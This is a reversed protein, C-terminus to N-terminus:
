RGSIRHCTRRHWNLLLFRFSSCTSILVVHMPVKNENVIELHIVDWDPHQATDVHHVQLQSYQAHCGPAEPWFRNCMEQLIWHKYSQLIKCLGTGAFVAHIACTCWLCHVWRRGKRWHACCCLQRSRSSGFLSGFMLGQPSWHLNPLWLPVAGLTAKCCATCWNITTADYPPFMLYYFGEWQCCVSLLVGM